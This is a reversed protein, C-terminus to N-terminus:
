ISSLLHWVCIIEVPDDQSVVHRLARMRNELWKHMLFVVYGSLLSFAIFKM